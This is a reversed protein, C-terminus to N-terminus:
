ENLCRQHWEMAFERVRRAKWAPHAEVPVRTKDFEIMTQTDQQQLAKDDQGYQRNFQIEYALMAVENCAQGAYASPMVALMFIIAAKMAFEPCYFVGDAFSVPNISPELPLIQVRAALYDTESCMELWLGILSVITHTAHLYM